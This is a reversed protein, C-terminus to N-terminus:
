FPFSPSCRRTFCTLGPAEPARLLMSSGLARAGAM